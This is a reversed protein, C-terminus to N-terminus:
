VCQETSTATNLVLIVFISFPTLWLSLYLSLVSNQFEKFESLLPCWKCAWCMACNLIIENNKEPLVKYKNCINRFYTIYFKYLKYIWFIVTKQSTVGYLRTSLYWHKPPVQQRWRWHLLTRWM